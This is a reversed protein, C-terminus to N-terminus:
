KRDWIKGSLVKRVNSAVQPLIEQHRHVRAIRYSEEREQIAVAPAKMGKFGDLAADRERELAYPTVQGSPWVLGHLGNPMNWRVPFGKKKATGVMTKPAEIIKSM